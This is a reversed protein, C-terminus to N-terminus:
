TVLPIGIDNIKIIHKSVRGDKTSTRSRINKSFGFYSYWKHQFSLFLGLM